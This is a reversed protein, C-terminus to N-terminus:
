ENDAIEQEWYVGDDLVFPHLNIHTDDDYVTINASEVSRESISNTYTTPEQGDDWSSVADAVHNINMWVVTEDSSTPEGSNMDILKM